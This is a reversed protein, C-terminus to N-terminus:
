RVHEEEIINCDKRTTSPPLPLPPQGYSATPSAAYGKISLRRARPQMGGGEGSVGWGLTGAQGIQM